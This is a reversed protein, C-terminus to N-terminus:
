ASIVAKWVTQAIQEFIPRMAPNIFDIGHVYGGTGTGHGHQIMVAVPFGNEVDLNSWFIAVSNGTKKVGYDWSTAARASDKPTARSLAQVGVRAQAAIVQDIQLTKIKNLFATTKAFDGSGSISIV